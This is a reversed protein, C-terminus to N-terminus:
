KDFDNSSPPPVGGRPPGPPGPPQYPQMPPGRNFDDPRRNRPDDIPGGM